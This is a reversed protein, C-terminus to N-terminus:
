HVTLMVGKSLKQCSRGVILLKMRGLNKTVGEFIHELFLFFWYNYVVPNGIYHRGLLTESQVLDELVNLVYIFEFLQGRKIYARPTSGQKFSQRHINSIIKYLLSIVLLEM